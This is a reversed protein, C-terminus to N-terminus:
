CYYKQTPSNPSEPETMFLEKGLMSDLLTRKMYYKDKSGVQAAIEELSRPVVGCFEKIIRVKESRSIETKSRSNKKKSRSNKNVGQIKETDNPSLAQWVWEEPRRKATSFSLGIGILEHGDVSWPLQYQKDLIQQLAVEAPQDIKCEIIYIYRDTRILLDIRGDSTMREADVQLDILKCLIYMVNRFHAEPLEQANYQYDAFFSQLRLLFQETRGAMVDDVFGDITLAAKDKQISTYYPILFRFFGDRVEQNPFDMRCTRGNAAMQAITLYGSQYLLPIISVDADGKRDLADTDIPADTLDTLAYHHKKLLDILYTPTGTEFWYNGFQRKSLATLLSFPNYLGVGDGVFHYGDYMTRLQEHMADYSMHAAQAIHRISPQLFHSLEEDTLGCIEAYDCDRSIDNLNNLDSFISIKSFKTIGSLMAFHICEDQSKLVSYFAKLTARFESQLQPYAIVDLLPKDYEDVLIVVGQGNQEYAKRVCGEFRQSLSVAGETKGYLNEWTTLCFNLRTELDTLSQYKDPSLDLRMVPHKTWDTAAHHIFLGEFLDKKGEFYASLTSLLLSKGFRRPRALFYYGGQTILRHIWKTKDVYLYGEKRIKEFHQIGIPLKQIENDM